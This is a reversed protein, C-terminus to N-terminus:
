AWRRGNGQKRPVNMEVLIRRVTEEGLGFRERIVAPSCGSKVAALIRRNRKAIEEATPRERASTYDRRTM